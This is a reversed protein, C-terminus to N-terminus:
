NTIPAPFLFQHIDTYDNLGKVPRVISQGAYFATTVLPKEDSNLIKSKIGGPQIGSAVEIITRLESSKVNTRVNEGLAETMGAVKNLDLLVGTSLAQNQIAGLVQQQYKERDFNGQSLGYGGMSNRSRVLSLATEGDLHHTGNTLRLGTAVDYIGRPDDSKVEVDVGGLSDVLQRVVTYNVAAYYQVDTGIIKSIKQAFALSAQNKDGGYSELACAYTANVKGAGGISCDTDYDVWLDRPISVTFADKTDQDVSLVMISDALSAGAHGPSDESTGFILVNSRGFSDRQLDEKKILADFINGGFLGIGSSIIRYGYYGGILLLVFLIIMLVRKLGRNSRQKSRRIGGSSNAVKDGRSDDDNMMDIAALSQRVEDRLEIKHSVDKALSRSATGRASNKSTM